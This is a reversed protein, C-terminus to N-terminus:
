IESFFEYKYKGKEYVYDIKVTNNPTDSWIYGSIRNNDDTFETYSIEETKKSPEGYQSIIQKAMMHTDLMFNKFNGATYGYSLGTFKSLLDNKIKVTIKEFSAGWGQNIKAVVEPCLIHVESDEEITKTSDILLVKILDKSSGVVINATDISQIASSNEEAEIQHAIREPELNKDIIRQLFAKVEEHKAEDSTSYKARVNGENDLVEITYHGPITHYEPTKKTETTKKATAGGVVAGVPGAILAGVLARGATSGTSTKTVTEEKYTVKTRPARKTTKLERLKRSDSVSNELLIRHTPEDYLIYKGIVYEVKDTYKGFLDEAKALGAARKGKQKKNDSIAMAIGGIIAAAVVIGITIGIDELSGGAIISYGILLIAPTIKRITKRM